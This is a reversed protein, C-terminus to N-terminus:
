GGREAAARGVVAMMGIWYGLAGAGAGEVGWRRLALVGALAPLVRLGASVWAIGLASRRTMLLRTTLRRFGAAYLVGAALGAAAGAVMGSPVVTVV